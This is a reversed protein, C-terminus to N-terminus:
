LLKFQSLNLPNVQLRNEIKALILKAVTSVLSAWKNMFDTRKKSISIIEREIEISSPRIYLNVFIFSETLKKTQKVEDKRSIREICSKM